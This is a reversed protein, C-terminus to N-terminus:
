RRHLSSGRSRGCRGPGVRGTADAASAPRNAHKASQQFDNNFITTILESLLDSRAAAAFDSENPDAGFVYDAPRIGGARGSVETSRFDADPM